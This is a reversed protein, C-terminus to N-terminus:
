DINEAIGMLWAKGYAPPAALVDDQVSLTFIRRRAAWRLESVANGGGPARRIAFQAAQGRVSANMMERVSLIGGGDAVFDWEHLTILVGDSREFVRVASSWPGSRDPGDPVIGDLRYGALATRSLDALPTKMNGEVEALPRLRQRLTEQRRAEEATLEGYLVGKGERLRRVDEEVVRRLAPPLSALPVIKVKGPELQPAPNLSAAEKDPAARGPAPCACAIALLGAAMMCNSFRM